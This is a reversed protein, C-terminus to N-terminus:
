TGDKLAVLRLIYGKYGTGAFKPVKDRTENTMGRGWILM